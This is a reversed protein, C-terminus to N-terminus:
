RAVVRNDLYWMLLMIGGGFLLLLVFTKVNQAFTPAAPEYPAGAEVNPERASVSTAAAENKDHNM